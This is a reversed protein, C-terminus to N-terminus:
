KVALPALAASEGGEQPRELTSLPAWPPGWSQSFRYLMASGNNQWQVVPGFHGPSIELIWSREYLSITHKLALEHWFFCEKGILNALIQGSKPAFYV